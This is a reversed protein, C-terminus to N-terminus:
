LLSMEHMRLLGIPNEVIVVQLKQAITRWLTPHKMKRLQYLLDM